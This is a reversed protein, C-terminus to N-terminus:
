AAGRSKEQGQLFVLPALELLEVRFELTKDASLQVGGGPYEIEPYFNSGGKIALSKFLTRLDTYSMDGFFVSPQAAFVFDSHIGFQRGGTVYEVKDRFVEKGTIGKKISLVGGQILSRADAEGLRAGVVQLKMYKVEAIKGAEVLEHPRTFFHQLNNKNEETKWFDIADDGNKVVEQDWQAYQDLIITEHIEDGIEVFRTDLSPIGPVYQVDTGPITQIQVGMPM